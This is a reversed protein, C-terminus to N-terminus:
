EKINKKIRKSNNSQQLVYVNNLVDIFNIKNNIIPEKKSLPQQPYQSYQPYQQLYQQQTTLKFDNLKKIIM